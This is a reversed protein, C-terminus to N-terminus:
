QWTNSSVSQLFNGNSKNIVFVLLRKDVLLITERRLKERARGTMVM